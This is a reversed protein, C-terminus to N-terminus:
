ELLQVNERGGGIIIKFNIGCKLNFGTRLSEETAWGIIREFFDKVNKEGVLLIMCSGLHQLSLKM